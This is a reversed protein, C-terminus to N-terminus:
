SSGAEPGYTPCGGLAGIGSGTDALITSRNAEASRARPRSGPSPPRTVETLGTAAKKPRRSREKGSHLLRSASRCVYLSTSCVCNPREAVPRNARELLEYVSRLVFRDVAACSKVCGVARTNLSSSTAYEVIGLPADRYVYAGVM